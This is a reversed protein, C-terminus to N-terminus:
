QNNSMTDITKLMKVIIDGHCKEPKCWCGLNKGKLKEFEKLNDEDKLLKTLHKEYKKLCKKKSMNNGIKYPNAWISDKKPYREKSGDKLTIFVICKRGIYVNNEDRMWQKLNKHKPRIHDVKVNVVCTKVKQKKPPTDM